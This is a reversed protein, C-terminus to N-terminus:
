LIKFGNKIANEAIIRYCDNAVMNMWIVINEHKQTIQFQIKDSLSRLFCDGIAGDREFQEFDNIIELLKEWSLEEIYDRIKM